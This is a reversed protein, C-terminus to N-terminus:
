LRAGFIAGHQMGEEYDKDLNKLVVQRVAEIAARRGAPLSAHHVKATKANSQMRLTYQRRYAAGQPALHRSALAVAIAAVRNM